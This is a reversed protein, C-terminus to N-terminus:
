RLIRWRHPKCSFWKAWSLWQLFRDIGTSWAAAPWGWEGQENIQLSPGVSCMAFDSIPAVNRVDAGPDTARLAGAPKARANGNRSPVIKYTTFVSLTRNRRDGAQLVCEIPNPCMSRWLPQREAMKPAQRKRAQRPPTSTTSKVASGCGYVPCTPADDRRRRPAQSWALPPASHM